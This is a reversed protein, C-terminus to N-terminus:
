GDAAEEAEVGQEELVEPMVQATPDAVLDRTVRM